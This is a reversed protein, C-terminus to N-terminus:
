AKSHGGAGYAEEIAEKTLIEYTEFVLDAKASIPNGGDTYKNLFTIQCDKMIVNQFQMLKGIKITINDGAQKFHEGAAEVKEKGVAGAWDFKNADGFQFPNPGPPKILPNKSEKPVSPLALQQLRLCPQLVERYASIVAEFKLTLTIVLPSTGKWIRRTSWRTLLARKTIAQVAANLANGVGVVPMFPDWESTVRFSMEDQLPARIAFGNAGLLSITVRYPEPIDGWMETSYGLIEFIGKMAGKTRGAVSQLVENFVVSGIQTKMGPITNIYQQATQQGGAVLRDVRQAMSATVLNSPNYDGISKKEANNLKVNTINDSPM